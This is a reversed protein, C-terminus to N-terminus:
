HLELRWTCTLSLVFASSVVSMMEDLQKQQSNFCLFVSYTLGFEHVVTLVTFM